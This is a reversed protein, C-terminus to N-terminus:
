IRVMYHFELAFNLRRKTDWQEEDPWYAMAHFVAYEDSNDLTMTKIYVHTSKGPVYYRLADRQTAAESAEWKLFGWSWKANPFGLGRASGDGMVKSEGWLRYEPKPADIGIDEVNILRKVDFTASTITSAAATVVTLHFADTVVDVILVQGGVILLDDHRLESTFYTLVGTMNKSGASISVTGTGTFDPTYSSICFGYEAM